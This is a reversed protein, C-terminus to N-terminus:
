VRTPIQNSTLALRTAGDLLAVNTASIIGAASRLSSSAHGPLVIYDVVPKSWTGPIDSATLFIGSGMLAKILDRRSTNNM